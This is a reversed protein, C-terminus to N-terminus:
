KSLRRDRGKIQVIECMEAIRSPIRDGIKESIKDLSLNSTFCTQKSDNYRTDVIAYLTQTVWESPKEVGLDDLILCPYSTYQYIIDQESKESKNQFTQKIELLIGNVNAIRPLTYSSLKKKEYLSKLLSNAMACILHTKGTGVGGWIYYSKGIDFGEIQSKMSGQIDSVDAFLYKKPIGAKIQEKLLKVELREDDPYDLIYNNKVRDYLYLLKSKSLPESDPM